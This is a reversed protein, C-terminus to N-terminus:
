QASKASQQHMSMGLGLEEFIYKVRAELKLHIGVNDGLLTRPTIFADVSM